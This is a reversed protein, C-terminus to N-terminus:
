KIKTGILREVKENLDEVSGNNNIMYSFIHDDLARESQHQDGIYGPRNVAVVFGGSNEIAKVENPFRVDCIVYHQDKVCKNILMDCWIDEHVHDRMACGIVQLLQRGTKGYAGHLPCERLDRNEQTKGELIDLPINLMNSTLEKIPSAFSLKTFDYKAKLYDGVSDKGSGKYGAIGIIM